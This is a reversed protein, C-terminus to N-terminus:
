IFDGNGALYCDCFSVGIFFECVDIEVIHFVAVAVRVHDAVSGGKGAGEVGAALM